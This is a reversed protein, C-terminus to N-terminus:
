RIQYWKGSRPASGDSLSKCIKVSDGNGTCEIKGKVTEYSFSSPFFNLWMENDDTFAVQAQIYGDEIIQFRVRVGPVSQNAGGSKVSFYIKSGTTYPNGSGDTAGSPSFDLQDFSTPYEGNALYYLDMANSFSRGLELWRSVRSKNVAQEYQPLAVAALIGIILVVVLLEILTFGRLHCANKGKSFHDKLKVSM